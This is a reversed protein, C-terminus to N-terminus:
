ISNMTSGAGIYKVDNFPYGVTKAFVQFNVTQSVASGHGAIFQGQFKTKRVRYNHLHRGSEGNHSIRFGVPEAADHSISFPRVTLDGIMFENDASIIHILGEPIKGVSSNEALAGATGATTYIPISYRRALVGLGKIHDSHEHTICIGDIDATTQEIGKLGEEIKRGSLGADILLSSSASGAYICNGSSGSSISCFKM